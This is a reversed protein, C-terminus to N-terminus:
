SGIKGRGKLAIKLRQNFDTVEPDIKEIIESAVRKNFGLSVLTELLDADSEMLGITSSNDMFSLKGKLELIIRQATKKGVGSAKSLLDIRGENIAATLRDISDISMITLASRPGVGSISILSEFLSLEKDSLFGFLVLADERVHLHTLLSVEEEIGPLSNLSTKSIFVKYGIGNVDVVVFNDRKNKLIGKVQYIM